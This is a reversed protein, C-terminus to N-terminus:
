RIRVTLPYGPLGEANFLNAWMVRGGSDNAYSVTEATAIGPGSLIVQAGDIRASVWTSDGKATSVYFGQLPKGGLAVLGGGSGSFELHLSDGSRKAATIQPGLTEVNRGYVKGLATLCFRAGYADKDPPHIFAQLDRTVAVHCDTLAQLRMFTDAENAFGSFIRGARPPIAPLDALPVAAQPVRGAADLVHINPGWAGGKPMQCYVVPLECAFGSRLHGLMIDFIDAYSGKLNAGIGSEGQDWLMGKIAFPMIALTHTTAHDGIFHELPCDADDSFPRNPAKKGAAKAADVVTQWDSIRQKRAAIFAPFGARFEALNAAMRPDASLWEPLVWTSLTSGAWALNIFGVPVALAHHLERSFYYGTASAKAATAPQCRDWHQGILGGTMPRGGGSYLRIGPYIAAPTEAIGVPYASLPTDINSQGSGIWVEGVAVDHLVLRTDGATISLDYGDVRGPVAKPTHIRVCWAGHTDATASGEVACFAVKVRSGPTATGWIPALTEQQLIGHDTFLPFVQLSEAAVAITSVLLPLLLRALYM